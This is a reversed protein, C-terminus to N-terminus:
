APDGLRGSYEVLRRGFLLVRVSFDVSGPQAGPTDHAVVQPALFGPLPCRLPGAALAASRQRYEIGAPSGAVEFTLEVGRFREAFLGRRAAVRTTFGQDGFSRRWIEHGRRPEIRLAVPVDVASAPFGLVGALLRLWANEGGLVDARGRAEGTAHIKQLAPPLSDWCGALLEQFATM